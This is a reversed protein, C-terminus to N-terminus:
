FRSQSSTLLTMFQESFLKIVNAAPDVRLVSEAFKKLCKEGHATGSLPM